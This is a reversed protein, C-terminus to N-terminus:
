RFHRDPVYVGVVNLVCLAQRNPCDNFVCGHAKADSGNLNARFENSFIVNSFNM